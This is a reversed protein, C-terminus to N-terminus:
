RTESADGPKKLQKEDMEESGLLHGGGSKTRKTISSGPVIPIGSSTKGNKINSSELLSTSNTSMNLQRQVAFFFPM